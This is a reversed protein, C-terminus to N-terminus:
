IKVKFQNESRILTFDKLLEELGYVVGNDTTGLQSNNSYGGFPSIRLNDIPTLEGFLSAYNVATENIGLFRNDSLISSSGVLGLLLIKLFYINQILILTSNMEQIKQNMGSILQHFIKM